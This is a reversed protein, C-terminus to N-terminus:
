NLCFRRWATKNRGKELTHYLERYACSDNVVEALQLEIVMLM